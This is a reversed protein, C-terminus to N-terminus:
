ESSKKSKKELSIRFQTVLFEEYTIKGDHNADMQEVTKQLEKDVKISMQLLHTLTVHIECMCTALVPVSNRQVDLNSTMACVAPM